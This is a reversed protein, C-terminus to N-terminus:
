YYISSFFKTINFSSCYNIGKKVQQLNNLKLVGCMSYKKKQLLTTLPTATTLTNGRFLAEITALTVLIRVVGKFQYTTAM